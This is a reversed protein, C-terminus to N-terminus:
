GASRALFMCRSSPDGKLLKQRECEELDAARQRADLVLRWSHLRKGTDRGEAADLKIRARALKTRIPDQM